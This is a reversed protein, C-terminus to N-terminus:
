SEKAIKDLVISFLQIQKNESSIMENSNKFTHFSEFDYKPFNSSLNKIFDKMLDNVINKNQFSVLNFLETVKLNQQYSKIKPVKTSKIMKECLGTM